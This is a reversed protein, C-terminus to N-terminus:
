IAPIALVAAAGVFLVVPVSVFISRRVLDPARVAVSGFAMGVMGVAYALLAFGTVAPALMVNVCFRDSNAGISFWQVLSLSAICPGAWVTLLPWWAHHDLRAFPRGIVGFDAWQRAFFGAIPRFWAITLSALSYLLLSVFVVVWGSWLGLGEM